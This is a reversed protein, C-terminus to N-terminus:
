EETEDDTDYVNEIEGDEILETLEDENVTTQLQLEKDKKKFM